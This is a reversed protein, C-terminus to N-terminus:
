KLCFLSWDTKYVPHIGSCDDFNMRESMLISSKENGYVAVYAKQNVVYDDLEAWQDAVEEPDQGRLEDLVAEIHPDNVFSQNFTVPAKLADAGLLPEFFDGPHPFDQYWATVGTQAKTQRQGVHEFYVQPDLTKIEADFGIESLADRYYDAIAPRPDASDTLVTVKNGAYGSQEVLRRAKELDPEGAPDGYACDLERYGVVNPPLLNCSPRLRGGFV